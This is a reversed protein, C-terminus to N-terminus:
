RMGSMGEVAGEVAAKIFMAAGEKIAGGVARIARDLQRKRGPKLPDEGIFTTESRAMRVLEDVLWWLLVQPRVRWGGPIAEDQAVFGQKELSRLEPDFDDIERVLQQVDFKHKELLKEREELANIHVLAVATLARRTESPWLRWVDDLTQAAEDYLSQRTHQRRRSSDGEGEEYVEWLASAAVQVLYPHGGTVEKIFRRDEATFRDGARRLLETVYENPLMGLVIEAFFNFYPSGTRSFQQTDKNLSALSRRSAIVLALAGRSRSALSRLSGFFEACNLIPHYLLLDFEDLMLVLRWGTPGMQAFLRELVFCGFENERCMQYAQALPSDPNPAIVQEHLPRLGHEWFQAQSFEGGLTQADMYSFLLREGSEGYLKTRTEPASLYLLLSTKGSDLEGVIASSQGRNVIRGAIRRLERRRDLFQDPPVPNGYFFPNSM